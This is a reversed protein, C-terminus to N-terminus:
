WPDYAIIVGDFNVPHWTALKRKPPIARINYNNLVDVVARGVGKKGNNYRNVRKGM